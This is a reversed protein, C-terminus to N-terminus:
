CPLSTLAYLENATGTLSLYNIDHGAKDAYRGSQGYGTLRAYILRPNDELLVDPGLDLKEMVGTPRGTSIVFTCLIKPPFHASSRGRRFPEILVDSGSCLKRLVGAGEPHKLNIVVSRKGRAM